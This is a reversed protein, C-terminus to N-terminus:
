NNQDNHSQKNYSMRNGDEVTLQHMNIQQM